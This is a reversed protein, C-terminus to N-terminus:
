LSGAIPVPPFPISRAKAPSRARSNMQASRAALAKSSTSSKNRVGPRPYSVKSMIECIGSIRPMWCQSTARSCTFAVDPSDRNSSFRSTPAASRSLTWSSIWCLLTWPPCSALLYPLEESRTASIVKHGHSQLLVEMARVVSETDDLVLIIMPTAAQTAGPAADMKGVAEQTNPRSALSQIELRITEQHRAISRNMSLRPNGQQDDYGIVEARVRDGVQLRVTPILESQDPAHEHLLFGDVGGELHVTYGWSPLDMITGSFEEGIPFTDALRVVARKKSLILERHEEGYEVVVAEFSDGERYGSTQQEAMNWSLERRRIIAPPGKYSGVRCLLSHGYVRIVIATVEKGRQHTSKIRHWESLRTVRHTSSSHMVVFLYLCEVFTM